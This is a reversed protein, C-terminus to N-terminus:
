NGAHLMFADHRGTTAFLRDSENPDGDAYKTEFTDVSEFGVHNDNWLVSGAWAEGGDVHISSPQSATGTNRDSLVIAQPNLTERWEGRRGGDEEPVQLMAYSYHQTTFPSATDWPVVNVDAEFPSILYEPTLYYNALLMAFRNQVELGARISPGGEQLWESWDLEYSANDGNSDLGPYYGKNTQAYIILGQHIGRLQLHNQAAPAGQGRPSLIPMIVAIAIMVCLLVVAAHVINFSPQRM